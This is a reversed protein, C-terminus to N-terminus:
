QLHYLEVLCVGAAGGPDRVLATHPGAALSAIIAAEAANTPPIGTASIEARQTDQWNDNESILAGNGDRLEMAPNPLANSVGSSNLSPGLARALVTTRNGGSIFGGIMVDGGTRLVGRTSINALKSESEQSLDYAEVLGVGAEADKGRAVATYAGPAFTHVVAAEREDRPPVGTAELQARNQTWDDNRAISTGTSDFVELVPNALANVVGANSLSPGIARIVVRKPDSGTIVFGGIMADDGLGVWCRTSVNLLRGPASFTAAYVDDYPITNVPHQYKWTTVLDRSNSNFVVVSADDTMLPGDVGQIGSRGDGAGTQNVNRSILANTGAERDYLFVDMSRNADGLFFDYASQFLVYRGSPNLEMAEVGVSMIRQNLGTELNHIYPYDNSYGAIFAIIRGDSSIDALVADDNIESNIRRTTAIAVDRVYIDRFFGNSDNAVLDRSDSDFVVFRGDDSVCANQFRGTAVAGEQLASPTILTATGGEVDKLYIAATYGSRDPHYAQFVVFRGDRSIATAACDGQGSSILSTTGAHLDRVFVDTVGNVDNAVINSAASSFVVFRGDASIYGRFGGAPAGDRGVSVLTTRGAAIDRVFVDDARNGDDPVLLPSSSTFVAFRGDPTLSEFRLTGLDGVARGEASKTILETNGTQRDRIFLDMGSMSKTNSTLNTARSRFLVFRGDVASVASVLSVHDGTSDGSRSMSILEIDM